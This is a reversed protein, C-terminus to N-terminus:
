RVASVAMEINLLARARMRVAAVRARAAREERAEWCEALERSLRESSIGGIALPASLGAEACFADCKPDYSLVAAPVGTIVSFIAAHMRLAVVMDLHGFTSLMEGATDARVVQAQAGCERGVRASVAGDHATDFALM